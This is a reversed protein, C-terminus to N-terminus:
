RGCHIGRGPLDADLKVALSVFRTLVGSLHAMAKASKVRMDDVATM